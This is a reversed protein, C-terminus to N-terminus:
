ELKSANRWDATNVNHEVPYISRVIKIAQHVYLNIAITKTHEFSFHSFFLPNAFCLYIYSM